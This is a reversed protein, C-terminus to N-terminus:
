MKPKKDEGVDVLVEGKDVHILVADTDEVILVIEKMDPRKVKEGEAVRPQLDHTRYKKPAIVADEKEKGQFFSTWWFTSVEDLQNLVTIKIRKTKTSDISVKVEEQAKLTVKIPLVGDKQGAQVMPLAAAFTLIMIMITARKMGKEGKRPKPRGSGSRSRSAQRM